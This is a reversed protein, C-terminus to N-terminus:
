KPAKRSVRLKEQMEHWHMVVTEATKGPTLMAITLIAAIIEEHQEATM